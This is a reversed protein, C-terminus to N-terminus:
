FPWPLRNRVNGRSHSNDRGYGGRYYGEDYGRRFGDRYAQKYTDKSGYESRYGEDADKYHRTTGPNNRKGDSRHEAGHTVGDRYGNEQAIRYVYNRGGYEYDRDDRERRDRRYYPDDRRYTDERYYPEDRYSPDYGSSRGNGYYGEDYGTRFGQRYAQKYTNKDESGSRYGDTADKYHRTGTPDYRKRELRHERGHEVGDHFGNQRALQYIDNRGYYDRDHPHDSRHQAQAPASTVLGIAIGGALMLAAKSTWRKLDDFNM